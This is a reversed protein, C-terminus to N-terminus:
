ERARLRKSFIVQSEDPLDPYAFPNTRHIVAGRAAYFRCAAINVDQTEVRLEICGRAEAWAEAAEFLLTGVGSRRYALEVRLDWLLALDERGELLDVDAGHWAILAAGIWRPGDNASLLGWSSLDFQRPWESPHNGAIADYDKTREGIRFAISILALESVRAIPEEQITIM